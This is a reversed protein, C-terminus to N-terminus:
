RIAEGDDETLGVAGIASCDKEVVSPALLRAERASGVPVVPEGLVLCPIQPMRPIAYRCLFLMMTFRCSFCVELTVVVVVTVEITCRVLVLVVIELVVDQVVVVALIGCDMM